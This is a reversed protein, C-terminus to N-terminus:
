REEAFAEAPQVEYEPVSYCAQAAIATEAASPPVFIRQVEQGVLRLFPYARSTRQLPIENSAFGARQRPGGPEFYLVRLPIAELDDNVRTVVGQPLRGFRCGSGECLLSGLTSYSRMGPAAVTLIEGSITGRSSGRSVRGAPNRDWRNDPIASALRTTVDARFGLVRTRIAFQQALELQVIQASGDDLISGGSGSGDSEFRITMTGPGVVHTTDAVGLPTHRTELESGTLDYEVEWYGSHSHVAQTPDPWGACEEHASSVGCIASCALLGVAWKSKVRSLFSVLM